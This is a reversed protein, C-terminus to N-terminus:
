FAFSFVTGTVILVAGGVLAGTALNGKSQADARLRVDAATLAGSRYKSNYQDAASQASGHLLLAAAELAIGGGVAVYGAYRWGHTEPPAATPVAAIRSPVAAAPAASRPRAAAPKEISSAQVVKVPAPPVAVQAAPTPPSKASPPAAAVSAPEARALREEEDIKTRMQEILTEVEAKNVADPKQNLYQRYHFYAHQWEHIQRYSQALNFLIAPEQRLRYAERFEGIAEQFEGLAYHTQGKKFHMRVDASPDALVPAAVLVLLALLRLLPM